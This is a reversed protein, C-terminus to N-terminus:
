NATILYKVLEGKSNQEWLMPCSGNKIQNAVEQQISEFDKSKIQKFNPEVMWDQRKPIFYQSDKSLRSFGEFALWYGSVANLNIYDPLSVKQKLPLFLQALFCLNQELKEQEIQYLNLLQKGEKSFLIPFQHKHLKDLKKYLFDKRKPGMFCKLIDESYNPDVIYFKYVLEIHKYTQNKIDEVLFDIEGLTQKNMNILQKSFAVLNFNEQMEIGSKLFIEMRKGIYLLPKLEDQLEGTITPLHFKKIDFNAYLSLKQNKLLAATSFFGRLQREIDQKNL